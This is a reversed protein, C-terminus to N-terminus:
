VVAITLQFCFFCDVEQSLKFLKMIMGTGKVVIFKLDAHKM